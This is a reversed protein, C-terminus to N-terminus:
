ALSLEAFASHRTSLLAHNANSICHGSLIESGFGSLRLICAKCPCSPTSWILVVLACVGTTVGRCAWKALRRKSAQLAVAPRPLTRPALENQGGEWFGRKGKVWSVVPCQTEALLRVPIGIDFFLFALM